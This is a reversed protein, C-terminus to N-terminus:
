KSPAIRLQGSRLLAHYKRGDNKRLSEAEEATMMGAPQPPADGGTPRELGKREPSLLGKETLFAKAATELRMGKNEPNSRFEELEAWMDSLMPYKALVTGKAVTDTLTSIKNELEAVKASDAPDSSDTLSALQAQAYDRDEEAKKLREFNQSSVEAKHKTDEWESKPVTVTEAGGQPPPDGAPNHAVPPVIPDTM